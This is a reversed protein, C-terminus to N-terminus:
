GAGSGSRVCRGRDSGRTLPHKAVPETRTLERLCAYATTTKGSGAPGTILLAGSTEGLLRRLDGEVASDLGLEDLYSFRQNAAFVRVVAREGHLTPFTSVRMEVQTREQRIRGEQPTDRQYTLLEALVKLRSVVDSSEGLPFVGLTQLVGDIRWSLELGTEVPQFHVDSTSAGQAAQLVSEVFESAYEARSADLVTLHGRLEDALITDSM